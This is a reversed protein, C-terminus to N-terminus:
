KGQGTGPICEEPMLEGGHFHSLQRVKELVMKDDFTLLYQECWIGPATYRNGAQQERREYVWLTEGNEGQRIATPPGLKQRVQSQTAQGKASDLYAAERNQFHSCGIVVMSLMLVGLSWSVKMM